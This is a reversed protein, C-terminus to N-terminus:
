DKCVDVKFRVHAESQGPLHVKEVALLHKQPANHVNPPTFFLLVIHSSSMQGINKVGLHFDFALNQCHEDAVDLSKCKSSHCVHDEPYGTTPNARMNMKIMPVKEVYSQPYRTVPLRGSPNHFGFIVNAIAAGSAENPYGVWLTRTIKDNTKAFSVDMSRWVHHCSDCTRLKSANAVDCVLLQEQGPLLINIRDLSEAEVALSADVVIVTADAFTAIKTADDLQANECQVNPYGPAYSTPVLTTLGQLPSIYNCPIIRRVLTEMLNNAQIAMFSGFHILTAFNNSVANKISAEDLLRQKVAGEIYQGLYNGSDLDLWSVSLMGM